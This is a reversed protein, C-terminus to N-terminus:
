CPRAAPRQPAAPPPLASARYLRGPLGREPSACVQEDFMAYFARIFADGFVWLDMGPILQADPTFATMCQTFLASLVTPTACASACQLRSVEIEDFNQGLLVYDDKTLTFDRGSITFMVDPLNDLGECTSAVVADELLTLM